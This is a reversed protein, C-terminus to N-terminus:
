RRRRVLVVLLLWGMSWPPSTSRCSCGSTDAGQAGSDSAGTGTSSGSGDASTTDGAADTTDGAADTTANTTDASGDTTADTADSGAGTSSESPDGITEAADQALVVLDVEEVIAEALGDTEFVAQVAISMAGGLAVGAFAEPEASESGAADVLEGRSPVMWPGGDLSVRWGLAAGDEVTTAPTLSQISEGPTPLSLVPTDINSVGPEFRSQEDPDPMVSIAANSSPRHAMSPSMLTEGDSVPDEFTGYVPADCRLAAPGVVSVGNTASGFYLKGPETGVPSASQEAITAGAPDLLSCTAASRSAVAVYQADAPLVLERSLFEFPLFAVAEGGDGDGYSMAGVPQDATIHLAVGTGQVQGTINTSGHPPLEVMSEAGSSDTVTITAGASGAAVAAIGNAVGLVDTSAPPLPSNDGNVSGRYAVVPVDSTFAVASADAADAAIQMATGAPVVVAPGAPSTFTLTAPGNPAVVFLEEAFRPAPSIFATGAFGEAVIADGAVGDWVGAVFGASRVFPEFGSSVGTRVELASLVETAGGVEFDNGAVASAFTVDGGNISGTVFYRVTPTPDTFFELEELSTSATGSGAYLYVNSSGSPLVGLRVVSSSADPRDWPGNRLLELAVGGEAGGVIDSGDPQALSRFSNPLINGRVTLVYRDVDAGPNALGIPLRWPHSRDLWDERTAHRGVGDLVEAGASAVYDGTQEPAVGEFDFVTTVRQAAHVTGAPLLVISAALVRYM